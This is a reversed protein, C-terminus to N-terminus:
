RFQLDMYKIRLPKYVHGQTNHISNLLSFMETATEYNLEFFLKKSEQTDHSINIM